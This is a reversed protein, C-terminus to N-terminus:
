SWAFGVLDQKAEEEVQQTVQTLYKQGGSRLAKREVVLLAYLREALDGKEVEGVAPTGASGEELCKQKQEGCSKIQKQAPRPM